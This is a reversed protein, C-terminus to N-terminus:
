TEVTSFCLSIFETNSIDCLIFPFAIKVVLEISVVLLISLVIEIPIDSLVRSDLIIEVFIPIMTILFHKIMFFHCRFAIPHCSNGLSM